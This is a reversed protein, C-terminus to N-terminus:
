LKYIRRDLLQGSLPDFAAIKFNRYCVLFRDGTDSLRFGVYTNAMTESLFVQFGAFRVYGWSNVKILRLDNPYAFPEIRKPLKRSSKIYVEGYTLSYKPM